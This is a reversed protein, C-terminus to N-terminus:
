YRSLLAERIDSLKQPSVAHETSDTSLPSQNAMLPHAIRPTIATLDCYRRMTESAETFLDQLQQPAEQLAQVVATRKQELPCGEIVYGIHDNLLARLGALRETDGIGDALTRASLYQDILSSSTLGDTLASLSNNGASALCANSLTVTNLSLYSM